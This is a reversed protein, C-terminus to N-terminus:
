KIKESLSTTLRFILLILIACVAAVVGIIAVMNKEHSLQSYDIMTLNFIVMAFAIAMLVYTVIKM